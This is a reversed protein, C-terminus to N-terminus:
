FIITTNEIIAIGFIRRETVDERELKDVAWLHVPEAAISM